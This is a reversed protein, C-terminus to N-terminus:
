SLSARWRGREWRSTMAMSSSGIARRTTLEITVNWDALQSELQMIFKDVVKIIVEALLHRFTVVADLQNRFEPVFMRSMADMDEGERKSRTFGYAARAM